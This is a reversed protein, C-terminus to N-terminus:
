CVETYYDQAAPCMTPCKRARVAYIIFTQQHLCARLETTRVRTRCVGLNQIIKIYVWTAAKVIGSVLVEIYHTHNGQGTTWLWIASTRGQVLCHWEFDTSISEHLFHDVEVELPLVLKPLARIQDGEWRQETLVAQASRIVEHMRIVLM